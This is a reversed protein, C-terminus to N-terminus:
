HSGRVLLHVGGEMAGVDPVGELVAENGLTVTPQVTSALDWAAYAAVASGSILTVAVFSAALKAVTRWASNTKLRGHRAVSPTKAARRSSHRLDHNVRNRMRDNPPRKARLAHSEFGRPM